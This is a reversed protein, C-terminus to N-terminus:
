MREDLIIEKHERSSELALTSLKLVKIGEDLPTCIPTGCLFCFFSVFVPLFAGFRRRVPRPQFGAHTVM